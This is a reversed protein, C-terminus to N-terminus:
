QDCNFTFQFSPFSTLALILCLFHPVPVQVIQPLWARYSVSASYYGRRRATPFASKGCACGGFRFCHQWREIGCHVQIMIDPYKKRIPSLSFQQCYKTLLNDSALTFYFILTNPLFISKRYNDLANTMATFDQNQCQTSSKMTLKM